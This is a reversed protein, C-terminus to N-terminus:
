SYKDVRHKTEYSQECANIQTQTNALLALAQLVNTQM